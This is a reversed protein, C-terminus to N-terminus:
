GGSTCSSSARAQQKGGLRYRLYDRSVGLLRAAASVNEGSQNLAHRILLGIAEELNFGESPFCFDPNFWSPTEIPQSTDIPTQLNEFDLDDNDAFVIARELEHALERVNGPWVYSLLRLRGAASIKKPALRQRQCIRRILLDAL